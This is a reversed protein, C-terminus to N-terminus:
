PQVPGLAAAVVEAAGPLHLEDARVCRVQRAPALARLPPPASVCRDQRHDCRPAFRCGPPMEDLAPVRGPISRLRTRSEGARPIAQMLGSTYPHLPKDLADDVPSQEVLQGAYMTMVRSCAEAVVGLDHSILLIAMDHAASLDRLLDLIQAQITVDLATTPEDAVLLRPEGALAIAAMVRQRMGGSLEHPYSRLREAAHPIGVDDLLALARRRAAAKSVKRHARITEVIQREITFVPDLAALPDQFIMSIESGRIGSLTRDSAGVLERGSLRVHGTVRATRAPLLGLLALGTVTKGSGSEGVLGVIECPMMAFSLERVACVEGGPTQFYISLDTVELLPGAAPAPTGGPEERASM